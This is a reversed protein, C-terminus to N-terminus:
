SESSSSIGGSANYDRKRKRSHKCYLFGNSIDSMLQSVWIAKEGNIYNYEVFADAYYCLKRINLSQAFDEFFVTNMNYYMHVVFSYFCTAGSTYM